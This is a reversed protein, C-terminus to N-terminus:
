KMDADGGPPSWRVVVVSAAMAASTAKMSALNFPPWQLMNVVVLNNRVAGGSPWVVTSDSCPFTFAAPHRNM